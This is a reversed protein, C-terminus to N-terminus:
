LAEKERRQESTLHSDDLTAFSGDPQLRNVSGMQSRTQRQSRLQGDLYLSTFVDPRQQM